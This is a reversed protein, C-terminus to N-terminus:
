NNLMNKGGFRKLWQPIVEKNVINDPIEGKLAVMVADTANKVGESQLGSRLNSSVMHPSLLVKHGMKTLPSNAALPEDEFVDLSAANIENNQLAKILSKENVVQGRSTNILIATQKMLGIEEEGIMQRTEETLTVHLSVIDSEKLLTPLDVRTVNALVFRSPEIYPDYAIIHVRWPALLDTLRRATRGFGIMGITLGTYGDQRNGLFTGQLIPDRWEGRKMAEDRERTKKLIALIMSMTGEAVASWNSELPSNTVIVGQKTAAEVDVDDVGISAKAVIRLNPAVAMIRSSIPSSRISTGMLADSNKAMTCMDGESNGQPTMWSAQGLALKCGAEEMKRHTAGTPDAPAFIFVKPSSMQVEGNQILLVHPTLRELSDFSWNLRL